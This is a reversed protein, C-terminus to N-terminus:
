PEFLLRFAEHLRQGEATDGSAKIRSVPKHMLKAVVARSLADAADQDFENANDTLGRKSLFRQVEQARTEEAVEYVRRLIPDLSSLHMARSYQLVENDVLEEVAAIENARDNRTAETFTRLHEINLLTVGALDGAAPDVDRPLGMDVVVLPRDCRASMLERLTSASVLFSEADTSTLWFDAESIQQTLQTWEVATAGIKEALDEGRQLTRNCVVVDHAQKACTVAVAMAAGMEGAGTILVRKKGLDGLMSEAMAVAAQGISTTGRAISTERRARRGVRTAHTFLPGLVGRCAGQSKAVEFARVVQGLIEHEGLVASELGAAVRMLHVVAAGDTRENAEEVLLVRDAGSVKALVDYVSELAPRFGVADVYIETRMCTSVVVAETIHDTETLYTLADEVSTPRLAVKELIELCSANHDFGVSVIM